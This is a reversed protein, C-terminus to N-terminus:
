QVVKIYYKTDGVITWVDKYTGSRMDIVQKAYVEVTNGIEFPGEAKGIPQQGAVRGPNYILLASNDLELLCAGDVFCGNDKDTVIGSFNREEAKIDAPPSYPELQFEPKNLTPNLESQVEVYADKGEEAKRMHWLMWIIVVLLLIVVVLLVKNTKSPNNQM